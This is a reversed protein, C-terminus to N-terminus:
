QSGAIYKSAYTGDRSDLTIFANWAQSDIDEGFTRASGDGLVVNITNPHGSSIGKVMDQGNFSSEYSGTTRVRDGLDAELDAGSGWLSITGGDAWAAFTDEDTEAMLLTLSGSQARNAKYPSILGMGPTGKEVPVGVTAATPTTMTVKDTASVPKYSTLAPGGGTTTAAYFAGQAFGTHSSSPCRLIPVAQGLTDNNKLFVTTSGPQLKTTSAATTFPGTTFDIQDNIYGADLDPLLKVFFSYPYATAAGTQPDANLAATSGYSGTSEDIFSSKDGYFAAQPFKNKRSEYAKCALGVNKLNAKCNSSNAAERVQGLAPLLLAVLIGIIAIVVLLEVLTFGQKMTRTKM